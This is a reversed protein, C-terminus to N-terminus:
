CSWDTMILKVSEQIEKRNKLPVTKGTGNLIKILGPRLKDEINDILFRKIDEAEIIKDFKNDKLDGIIEISVPNKIVKQLEIRHQHNLWKKCIKNLEEDAEGGHLMDCDSNCPSQFRIYRDRQLNRLRNDVCRGFFNVLKNEKVKEFDFHNIAKLCIIRIEQGIDDAEFCDFTYDRSKVKVLYEVISEIDKYKLNPSSSKSKKM